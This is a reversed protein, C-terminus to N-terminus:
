LDKTILFDNLNDGNPTVINSIFPPPPPPCPKFTVNITDTFICTGRSQRLWYKGSKTVKMQRGNISDNWYLTTFPPVNDQFDLTVTEGECATIDPGLSFEEMGFISVNKAGTATCGGATVLVSYVGSTNVTITQTTQGGPQWLYTAGPNGADLTISTQACSIFAPGLKVEPEPRTYIHVSDRTTCQGNTLELWYTGPQTIVIAPVTDGTSWLFRENFPSHPFTSALSYSAGECITTDKGLHVLPKNLITVPREYVSSLGQRFITLKVLYTGPLFYTHSPQLLKSTNLFTSGPDGFNW